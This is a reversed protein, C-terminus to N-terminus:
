NMPSCRGIELSPTDGGENKGGSSNSKKYTWYGFMYSSIFRGNNKNFRFSTMGECFLAGVSNFDEKCQTLTFSDGLFMVEWSYGKLSSKKVVYKTEPKFAAQEWSDTNKNYKFGTAKETVCLFSTEATAHCSIAIVISAIVIKRM